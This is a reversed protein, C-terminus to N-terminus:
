PEHCNPISHTPNSLSKPKIYGLSHICRTPMFSAWRVTLERWHINRQTPMLDGQKSMGLLLTSAMCAKRLGFFEAIAWGSDESLVLPEMGFMSREVWLIGFSRGNLGPNGGLALLENGFM